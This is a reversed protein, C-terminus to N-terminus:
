DLKRRLLSLGGMAIGLLILTLGGDPVSYGGKIWVLQDQNPWLGGNGDATTGLNLVYVEYDDPDSVDAKAEDIGGFYSVVASRFPNSTGPDDREGELWWITQQLAGASAIRGSGPTYNYGALSGQAFQSYLWATGVSIPDNVLQGGRIAALSVQYYYNGPVSVHENYEVCFTEIGNGYTAAPAYDSVLGQLPGSDTATLNFEGGNGSYYGSIRNLTLTNALASAAMASALVVSVALTRIHRKMDDYRKKKIMEM